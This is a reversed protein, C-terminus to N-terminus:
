NYENTKRLKKRVVRLTNRLSKVIRKVGLWISFCFKKLRLRPFVCKTDAVYSEYLSIYSKAANTINLMDLAVSRAWWGDAPDYKKLESIFTEKTFIIKEGRGSCNRKLARTFNESNLYGCGAAVDMYDRNDYSIVCRGCAMSDYISRGIGVVLDSQNIREGGNWVNDVSREGKAFEVGLTDCCDSIFENAVSSQCLSLVRTLKDNIPNSPFFRSCDVGNYIVTSEHGKDRLYQQIEETVAVYADAYRSPQELPVITGHCTQVIFGYSQLRAVVPVHNALILDYKNGTMYPIGNQELLDSAAGRQFTFYEVGHGQRKLEVALAYSYTETGGTGQLHNTAVLIKM